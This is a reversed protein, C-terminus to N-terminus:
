VHGDEESTLSPVWYGVGRITKIFSMPIKKRLNHIHVEVTNSNIEDYWGNMKQQLQEKTLVKNKHILLALLIQYENPTLEILRDNYRAQHNAPNLTLAGQRLIKELLMPPRRLLARLRAHLEEVDFPKVLYDDAGLDLGKIKEELTDRATLILIPLKKQPRISKLIDFGDRHPLGLDLIACDYNGENLAAYATHGDQVWDALYGQQKLSKLIGQGLLPDDEILLINM